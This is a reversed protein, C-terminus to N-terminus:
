EEPEILLTLGRVARVRIRSGRPIPEGVRMAEARWLAAGVRVYGSPALQEEVIGEAGILGEAGMRNKNKAGYADRVFPYLALDKIVWLLFLGFAAWVSSDTWRRLIWIALAALVWGPIQLLLYKTLPRL